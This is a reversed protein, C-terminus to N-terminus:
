YFFNSAKTYFLKSFYKFTNLLVNSIFSSIYKPNYGLTKCFFEVMYLRNHSNIKVNPRDNVPNAFTADSSPYANDYADHSWKNDVDM